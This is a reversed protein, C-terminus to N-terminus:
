IFSIYKNFVADLEGKPQAEEIENQLTPVDVLSTICTKFDEGAKEINAYADPSTTANDCKQKVIKKVDEISFSSTNFNEPM